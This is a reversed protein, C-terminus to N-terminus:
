CIYISSQRILSVINPTTLLSIFIKDRGLFLKCILVTNKQKNNNKKAKTFKYVNKFNVTPSSSAQEIPKIKRQKYIRM